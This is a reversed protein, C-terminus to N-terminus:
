SKNKKTEIVESLLELPKKNWFKLAWSDQGSAKEYLCMAGTSVKLNQPIDSQGSKCLAPSFRAIGNSTVVLIKKGSHNEELEAGFDFWNKRLKEPDLQWGPPTQAHTNWAALAAEGIRAIVLDEPQNEDPGYDIEKFQDDIIIQQTNVGATELATVATQRTRQLPSCFTIQPIFLSKLYRGINQSRELEVLPLDTHAGVRRPVENPKFTNGHRVILLQTKM